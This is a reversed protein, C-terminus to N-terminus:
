DRLEHIERGEAGLKELHAQMALAAASRLEAPVDDWALELLRARSREGSDLAAVLKAERETRHRVYEAIKESPSEIWPGHGPCLLELDLETLRALSAMYDLLSGGGAAPPVISSGSGLILDGCFCVRGLLFCAHDSAHGPTPIVEFPGVRAAPAAGDSAQQGPLTAVAPDSSAAALASAEDGQDPEGWLLEGGLVAAGASHDAHSHTLLIGGLGGREDIAARISEIHEPDDPGPDIVYAPDRGVVYSNTGALTLPSLNAARLCTIQPHGPATSAAAM